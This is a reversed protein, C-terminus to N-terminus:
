YSRSRLSDTIAQFCMAARRGCLFLSISGKDTISRKLAELRDPQITRPNDPHFKLKKIPLYTNVKCLDVVNSM